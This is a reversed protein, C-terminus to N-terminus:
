ARSRDDAVPPRVGEMVARYVELTGEVLRSVSYNELVFEAGRRGMDALEDPNTAAFACMADALSRADDPPVLWGWSGDRVLKGTDGVDTAVVPRAHALAELVVNPLGEWRSCLLLGDIGLYVERTNKTEGIFRVRGALPSGALRAEVSDALGADIRPGVWM